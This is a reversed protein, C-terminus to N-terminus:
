GPGRALDGSSGAGDFGAEIRQSSRRRARGSRGRSGSAPALPRVLRRVAPVRRRGDDAHLQLGDLPLGVQVSHGRARRCCSCSASSSSGSSRSRTSGSTTSASTGPGASSATARRAAAPHDPARVRHLARDGGGGDLRRLRRLGVVTGAAADPVRPRLDGLRHLGSDPRAEVGAALASAGTGRRRALVRVDDAVGVDDVRDHLLGARGRRHVLLFEAWSTAWRTRGSTSSSTRRRTRRGRAGPDRVDRRRAPRLRLDVSVVVSMVMGWAAGLSANRTEESMHASADYGTITYQAM